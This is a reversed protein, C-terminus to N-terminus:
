PLPLAINQLLQDDMIIKYFEESPKVNHIEIYHKYGFPWVLVKKKFSIKYEKSGNVKHCLRCNSLGRYSTFKNLDKLKEEIITLKKLFMKKGKWPIKNGVPFPFPSNTVTILPFPLPSNIVPITTKQGPNDESWYGEIYRTKDNFLKKRDFILKIEKRKKQTHKKYSKQRRKTHKKPERINKRRNSNKLSVM